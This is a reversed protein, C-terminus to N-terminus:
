FPYPRVTAVVVYMVPVVVIPEDFVRTTLVFAPITPTPTAFGAYAKWTTPCHTVPSVFNRLRRLLLLFTGAMPEPSPSPSPALLISRILRISRIELCPRLGLSGLTLPNALLNFM